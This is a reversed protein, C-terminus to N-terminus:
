VPVIIHGTDACAEASWCTGNRTLRPKSRLAKWPAMAAYRGRRYLNCVWICVHKWSVLNSYVEDGLWRLRLRDQWSTHAVTRSGLASLLRSVLHRKCSNTQSDVCMGLLPPAFFPPTPHICQGILGFVAGGHNDKAAVKM